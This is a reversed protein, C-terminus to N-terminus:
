KKNKKHTACFIGVFKNKGYAVSNWGEVSANSISINSFTSPDTPDTFCTIDTINNAVAIYKDNGYVLSTFYQDSLTYENNISDFATGSWSVGNNSYFICNDGAAVFIM